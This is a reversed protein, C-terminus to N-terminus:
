IMSPVSFPPGCIPVTWCPGPCAHVTSGRERLDARILKAARLDAKSLDACYLAARSMDSAIFSAGTLDAGTFDIDQMQRKHAQVGRAVIFRTLARRGGPRGATFAEHARVLAEFQSANIRVLDPSLSSKGRHM